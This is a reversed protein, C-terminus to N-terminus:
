WTPARNSGRKVIVEQDEWIALGTTLDTIALEFYYEVQQQRNDMQIDRQRITGSLSLDPAILQGEGEVTDQNFEGSERLQRVAMNMEDEPGDLGVATTVVVRGSNLLDSRIKRVLQDTDIRQMTDNVIRSVVLVYRGGQPNELARSGLMGDVMEGAASEFDRYDLAMVAEGRDDATDVYVTSPACGMIVLSALLVISGIGM